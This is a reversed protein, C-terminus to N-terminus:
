TALQEFGRYLVDPMLPGAEPDVIIKVGNNKRTLCTFGDKGGAIFAKLGVKYSKKLDLPVGDLDTL